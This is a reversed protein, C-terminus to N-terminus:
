AMSSVSFLSTPLVAGYLVPLPFPGLSASNGHATPVKSIVSAQRMATDWCEKRSRKGSNRFKFLYLSVTCSRNEFVSISTQRKPGAPSHVGTHLNLREICLSCATRKESYSFAKLQTRINPRTFPLLMLGFMNYCKQLSPSSRRRSGHRCKYLM